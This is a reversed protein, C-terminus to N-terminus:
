STPLYKTFLWLKYGEFLSYYTDNTGLIASINQHLILQVFNTEAGGLYIEQKKNQAISNKPQVLMCLMM